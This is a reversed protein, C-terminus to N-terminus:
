RTVEMAGPNGQHMALEEMDKVFFVNLASKAKERDARKSSALRQFFYILVDQLAQHSAPDLFRSIQLRGQLKVILELPFPRCETLHLLVECLCAAPLAELIEPESQIIPGLWGMAQNPGREEMISLILQPSQSSLRHGLHFNADSRRLTEITADPVQRVPGKPDYLYLQSLLFSNSADIKIGPRSGSTDAFSIVCSSQALVSEM